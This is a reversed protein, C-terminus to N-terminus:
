LGESEGYLRQHIERLGSIEACVEQYDCSDCDFTLQDYIKLLAEIIDHAKVATKALASIHEAEETSLIIEAEEVLELCMLRELITAGYRQLNFGKDVAARSVRCWIKQRDPWFRTSIGKLSTEFITDRLTQYTEYDDHCSGKVIVAQVFPLKEGPVEPLDPGILTVRGPNLLKKQATWLVLFLSGGAGGLELATDEKLVLSPGMPWALKPDFEFSRMTNRYQAEKIYRGLALIIEAFLEM